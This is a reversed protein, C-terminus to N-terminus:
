GIKLECRIWDMGIHKQFKRVYMPANSMASLFVTIEKTGKIFEPSLKQTRFILRANDEDIMDRLQEESFQIHKLKTDLSFQDPFREIVDKSLYSNEALHAFNLRNFYKEAIYKSIVQRKSMLVWDLQDAFADIFRDSLINDQVKSSFYKRRVNANCMKLQKDTLYVDKFEKVKLLVSSDRFSWNLDESRLNCYPEKLNVANNNVTADIRRYYDYAHFNTRIDESISYSYFIPHKYQEGLVSIAYDVFQNLDVNGYVNTILLAESGDYKSFVKQVIARASFEEGRGKFDTGNTLYIVSVDEDFAASIAKFRTESTTDYLNQCSTWLSRSSMMLLDTPDTSHVIFMPLNKTDRKLFLNYEHSEIRKTELNEYSIIAQKNLAELIVGYAKYISSGSQLKITRPYIGDQFQCSIDKQLKFKSLIDTDSIHNKFDILLNHLATAPKPNQAKTIYKLVDNTLATVKELFSYKFSLVPVDGFSVECQKRFAAPMSKPRHHTSWYKFLDHKLVEPPIYSPLQM